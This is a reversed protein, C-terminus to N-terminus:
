KGKGRTTNDDEVDDSMGAHVQCYSLVCVFCLSCCWACVCLCLAFVCLCVCVSACMCM